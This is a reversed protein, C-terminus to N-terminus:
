VQNKLNDVTTTTPIILGTSKSADTKEEEVSLSIKGDTKKLKLSFFTDLLLTTFILATAVWQQISLANGFYIVSFLVNFFKRITLVICCPVVGFSTIMSCTFIQGFGGVILIAGINILIEPHKTSFEIFGRFENSVIVGVVLFASSWSNIFLMLNLPSPRAHSRMKEQVGATFGNMLLSIGVLVYGITSEDKSDLGPKYFFMIAGTVILVVFIYKHLAYSKGGVCCGFLMTPIPKLASFMLMLILATTIFLKVLGKGVVQCPYSIFRLASNSTVLAVVYFVASLSYFGQPTENPAHEHTLLLAAYVFRASLVGQNM